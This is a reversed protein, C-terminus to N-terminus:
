RRRRRRPLRGGPRHPLRARRVTRPSAARRGDARETTRRARSRRAGRHRSPPSAPSQLSSRPLYDHLTDSDDCRKSGAGVLLRGTQDLESRREVQRSAADVPMRDKESGVRHDEDELPAVGVAHEAREAARRATPARRRPAARRRSASPRGLPTCRTVVPTRAPSPSPRTVTVPAGRRRRGTGTSRPSLRVQTVSNASADRRRRPSARATSKSLLTRWPSRRGSCWDASSSRTSRRRSPARRGRAARRCPGRASRSPAGRREAHRRAERDRGVGAARVERAATRQRGTELVLDDLVDSRRSRAVPQPKPSAAFGSSRETREPAAIEIGPIISVIRSRPRLSSVTAPQRRRGAVLPEGVVGVPAQDLHVALDDLADVDCANSSASVASRASRPTSSSTSSM